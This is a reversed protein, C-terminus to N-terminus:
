TLQALAEEVTAVPLQCAKGTCVFIMSPGLFKDQLLPLSSAATAGLFLRNPLHHPAFAARLALAAPGTIAIERFPFVHPLLALGWNSHGTPHAPMGEVVAALMRQAIRLYHPEDHLTGLVFLGKAMSSNSAPIVNDHMEKPRVVLPPDQDSTFHFLGSAPDHFHRIAHEAIAMAEVTWRENFTVGYLALLAEIMFCHDELFGNIGAKGDKLCHWLGGDPKRCKALLLEMNRVAAALWEERGFVEFADCLGKVMLANWSTIAKDDLGPRVRRNRAELLRGNISAIQEALADEAMGQERAFAADDM